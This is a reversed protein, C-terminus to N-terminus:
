GADRLQDLISLNGATVWVEALRGDKLHYVSFERTRVSRGTPAVGMFEGRHTGTDIFHAAISAGDILLGQLRWQYDPFARVVERLGAVYAPLGQVEDNVRVDEAVFDSLRDFAHANGTALYHRYFAAAESRRM